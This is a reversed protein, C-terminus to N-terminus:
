PPEINEGLRIADAGGARDKTVRSSLGVTTVPRIVLLGSVHLIV